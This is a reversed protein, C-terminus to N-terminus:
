LNDRFTASTLTGPPSLGLNWHGAELWLRALWSSRQHVIACRMGQCFEKPNHTKEFIVMYLLDSHICRSLGITVHADATRSASKTGKLPFANCFFCSDPTQIHFNCSKWTSMQKRTWGTCLSWIPCWRLWWHPKQNGVPVNSKAYSMPHGLIIKIYASSSFSLSLYPSDTSWSQWVITFHEWTSGSTPTMWSSISWWLPLKLISMHTAALGFQPCPFPGFISPIAWGSADCLCWCRRFKIRLSFPEWFFESAIKNM